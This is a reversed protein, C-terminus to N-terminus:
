RVPITPIPASEIGAFQLMDSAPLLEPSSFLPEHFGVDISVREFVRGALSASARYRSAVAGIEDNIQGSGEISFTFYDNLDLDQAILFDRTAHVESDGRSIDLDFTMRSQTHLRAELAVGGKLMWGDPAVVLMRALLREFTVLKRLRVVPMGSERSSTLLRTELAQRFAAATSYRM